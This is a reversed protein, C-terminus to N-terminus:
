FTYSFQTMLTNDWAEVGREEALSDYETKLATKLNLKETLPTVLALESVARFEEIEDLNPMLVLVESLTSTKFVTQTYNLGLRLNVYDERREEFDRLPSRIDLLIDYIKQLTERPTFVTGAGLELLTTYLDNFAGSRIANRTATREWPTFSNWQERTYTAGIDASLSRKEQKIFDYGLGLGGQLRYELKRGDDREALGLTYLYMREKLYYQWRYDAQYRRTNLVDDVTGYVASFNLSLTNREGTRKVGATFNFDTTDTNGTRLALGLDVAGSWKKPPPPNIITDLGEDTRSLAAIESPVITHVADETRIGMGEELQELRGAVVENDAMYVFCATETEIVGIMEMQVTIDGAYETNITAVGEAITVLNGTIRDGNSLVIRDADASNWALVPVVIVAIIKKWM